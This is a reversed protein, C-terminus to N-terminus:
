TEEIARIAAEIEDAWFQPRHRGAADLAARYDVLAAAHEGGAHLARAREALGRALEEGAGAQERVLALADSVLPVAERWRGAATLSRALTLMVSQRLFYRDDASVAPVEDLRPLEDLVSRLEGVARAPDALLVFRALLVRADLFGAPDDVTAYLAVARRLSAECAEASGLRMEAVGLQLLARAQVAVARVKEAAAIAARATRRAERYDFTVNVMTWAIGTRIEAEAHHDGAALAAAVAIAHVEPWGSWATYRNSFPLIRALDDLLVRPDEVTAVTRLAALWGDAEEQLWADASSPSLELQPPPGSRPAPLGPGAVHSGARAATTVYWRALTEAGAREEEPHEHLRARAFLRLLDHLRYRARDLPELLGLHVLEELGDAADEEDRGRVAAAAAASFSAAPLLALDRFDRQQEEDLLAYSTAFAREVELDGATLLRLRRDDSRLRSIMHAADRAPQAAVRGAVIRLALPLDGCLEALADLDSAAGQREPIATRLFATSGARPLPGVRLHRVGELGALSRRSTAVVRADGGAALVVRVQSETAADDLVLVRPASRAVDAWGALAADFGAPVEPAGPVQRLLVQLVGLPTLPRTTAGALNVFLPAPLDPFARRVAELALSTKGAGPPGSLVVTRGAGTGAGTAAGTAAGTGTGRLLDVLVALEEARGTFDDPRHPRASEVTPGEEDSRARRVAEVFREREAPRLELGDALALVTRRQPVASVGREIDGIARDSVGSREALAELTLDRALRERRVLEGIATPAPM